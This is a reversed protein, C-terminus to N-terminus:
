NIPIKKYTRKLSNNRSQLYHILGAIMRCIKKSQENLDNFESKIIYNEDMADYLHARVETASRKAYGLFKIFEHDTMCDSGEAINASISRASRTIQDIFSFDRKVNPRKCFARIRQVLIRSERWIDLDEFNHFTGMFNGM